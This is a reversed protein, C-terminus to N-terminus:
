GNWSLPLNDSDAEPDPKLPPQRSADPSTNGDASPPATRGGIQVAASPLMLDGSSGRQNPGGKTGATARPTPLLREINDLDIQRSKTEIAERSRLRGGNGMNADPTPLLRATVNPLRTMDDADFSRGKYDRSMPTPLLDRIVRTEVDDMRRPRHQPNPGGDGDSKRPTPLLSSAGNGGTHHASTPLEYAFGNRTMGARPWTVSQEPLSEPLLSRQFTRWRSSDLDYHAFPERSPRGSLASTMPM